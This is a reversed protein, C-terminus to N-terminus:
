SHHIRVSIDQIGVVQLGDVVVLFTEILFGADLFPAIALLQVALIRPNGDNFQTGVAHVLLQNEAVICGTGHSGELVQALEATLLAKLNVRLTFPALMVLEALELLRLM